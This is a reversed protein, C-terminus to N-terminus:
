YGGAAVREIEKITYGMDRIAESNKRVLEEMARVEADSAMAYSGDRLAYLIGELKGVWTAMEAMERVLEERANIYNQSNRGTKDNFTTHINDIDGYIRQELNKVELTLITITDTSADIQTTLKSIYNIGGYTAALISLVVPISAIYKFM